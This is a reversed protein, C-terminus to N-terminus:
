EFLKACGFSCGTCGILFAIILPLIMLGFAQVRIVITSMVFPWIQLEPVDTGTSNGTINLSPSQSSCLSPYSYHGEASCIFPDTWFDQYYLIGHHPDSYWIRGVQVYNLILGVLFTLICCGLKIRLLRQCCSNETLVSMCGVWATIIICVMMSVCTWLMFIHFLYNNEWGLWEFDKRSTVIYVVLNLAFCLTPLLGVLTVGRSNNDRGNHNNESRTASVYM